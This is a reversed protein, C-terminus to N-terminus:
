GSTYIKLFHSCYYLLGSYIYRKKLKNYLTIYFTFTGVEIEGFYVQDTFVRLCEYLQRVNSEKEFYIHFRSGDRIVKGQFYKLILQSLYFYLNNEMLSKTFANLM